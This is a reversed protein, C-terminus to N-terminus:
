LYEVQTDRSAQVAMRALQPLQEAFATRILSLDLAPASSAPLFL